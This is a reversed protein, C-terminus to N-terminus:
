VQKPIGPRILEIGNREAEDVCFRIFRTALELPDNSQHLETAAAEYKRLILQWPESNFPLADRVDSLAHKILAVATHRRVNKLEVTVQVLQSTLSDIAVQHGRRLAETAMEQEQRLTDLRASVQAERLEHAKKLQRVESRLVKIKPELYRDSYEEVFREFLEFPPLNDEM